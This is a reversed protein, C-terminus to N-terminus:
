QVKLVNNINSGKHSIRNYRVFLVPGKSIVSNVTTLYNSKM